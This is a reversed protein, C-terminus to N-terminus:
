PEPRLQAMARRLRPLFDRPAGPGQAFPTLVSGTRGLRFNPTGTVRATGAARKNSQLIAVLRRSNSESQWRDFDLGAGRAVRGLFQPTAYGSNEAGQNHYWLDAFQWMRDQFGAAVTAAAGTSSDPGLFSVPRLEIRLRGPRVFREIVAPLVERDFRACYPCQLDAFEVLTFPADPDGLAGSDQRIGGFREDLSAAGRLPKEAARHPSDGGGCGAIAVAVVAAAALRTL